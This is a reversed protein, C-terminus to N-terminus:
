LPEVQVMEIGSVCADSSWLDIAEKAADNAYVRIAATISSSSSASARSSAVSLPGPRPTSYLPVPWSTVNAPERLKSKAKVRSFLEVLPRYMWDKPRGEFDFIGRAVDSKDVAVLVPRNDRDGPRIEWVAM